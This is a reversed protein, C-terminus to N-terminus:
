IIHYYQTYLCEKDSPFLLNSGIGGRVQSAIGEDQVFLTEFETLM